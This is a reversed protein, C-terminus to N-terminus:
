VHPQSAVFRRKPGYESTALHDSLSVRDAREAAVERGKSRATSGKLSGATFRLLCNARKAWGARTSWLRALSVSARLEWCRAQQERAVTIAREFNGQAKAEDGRPFKFAIEGAVRYAEAEFWREKPAM